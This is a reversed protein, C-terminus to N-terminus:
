VPLESAIASHRRAHREAGPEELVRGDVPEPLRREDLRLERGHRSLVIEAPHAADQVDAAPRAGVRCMKEVRVVHADVQIRAVDLIRPPTEPLLEDGGVDRGAEGAELALEVEHEHVAEEVVDVVAGRMADEGREARQDRGAAVNVDDVEDKRLLRSRRERQRPEIAPRECAWELDPPPEEPAVELGHV